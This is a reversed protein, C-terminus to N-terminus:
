RHPRRGSYGNRVINCPMSPGLRERQHLQKLEARIQALEDAPHLPMDQAGGCPHSAQPLIFPTSNLPTRIQEM